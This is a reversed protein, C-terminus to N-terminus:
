KEDLVKLPLTVVSDRTQVRIRRLGPRAGLLVSDEQSAGLPGVTLYLSLVKGDTKVAGPEIAVGPASTVRAGDLRDGYVFFQRREGLVTSEPILRWERPPSAQSASPRSTCAASGLWAAGALLPLISLISRSACRM